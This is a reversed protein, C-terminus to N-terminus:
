HKNPNVYKVKPAADVEEPTVLEADLQWIMGTPINVEPLDFPFKMAKYMDNHKGKLVFFPKPLSLHSAGHSKIKEIRGVCFVYDTKGPEIRVSRVSSKSDVADRCVPVFLVSNPNRNTIYASTPYLPLTILISHLFAIITLKQLEM